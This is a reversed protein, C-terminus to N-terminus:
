QVLSRMGVDLFVLNIRRRGRKREMNKRGRKRGRREWAWSDDSSIEMMPIV